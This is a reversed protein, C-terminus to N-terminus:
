KLQFHLPGQRFFFIIAGLPPQQIMSSQGKPPDNIPLSGSEKQEKGVAGTITAENVNGQDDLIQAERPFDGDKLKDYLGRKGCPGLPREEM